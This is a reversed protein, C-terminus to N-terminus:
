RDPRKGWIEMWDGPRATNSFGLRQYMKHADKTILLWQYVNKLNGHALIHDIMAQAIGNNRYNEDVYVDSIYAFRTRDSIARSYGVQMGGTFAGVVLASNQASQRVEWLKIGPCWYSKALMETVRGFDMNDCGNLITFELGSM